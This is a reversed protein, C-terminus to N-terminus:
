MRNVQIRLCFLHNEIERACRYSNLHINDKMASMTKLECCDIPDVQNKLIIDSPLAPHSQKLHFIDTYSLINAAFLEAMFHTFRRRRWVNWHYGIYEIRAVERDLSNIAATNHDGSGGAGVDGGGNPTLQLPERQQSATDFLYRIVDVSKKRVHEQFEKSQDQQCMMKALLCLLRSNCIEAVKVVNQLLINAIAELQLTSGNALGLLIASQDILNDVTLTAFVDQVNAIFDGIM